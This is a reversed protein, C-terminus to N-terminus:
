LIFLTYQKQIKKERDERGDDLKKSKLSKKYLFNRLNGKDWGELKKFNQDGSPVDDYM